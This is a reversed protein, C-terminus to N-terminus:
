ILIIQYSQFYLTIEHLINLKHALVAINFKQSIVQHQM